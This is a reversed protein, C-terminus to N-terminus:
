LPRSSRGGSLRMACRYMPRLVVNRTATRILRNTLRWSIRAREADLENRLSMGWAEMQDARLRDNDLESRLSTITAESQSRLERSQDAERTFQSQLWEIMQQRELLTRELAANSAVKLDLDHRAATLELERIRERETFEALRAELDAVREALDWARRAARQADLSTVAAGDGPEVGEATM